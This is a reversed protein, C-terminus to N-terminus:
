RPHEKCLAAAALLGAVAAAIPQGTQSEYYTFGPSPNVEFCYWEGDPTRRLDIGAVPLGLRKALDFCRLTVEPPLEISTLVPDRHGLVRAYRYDDADSDVEVAFVEAGVVHVRVDTGPVRRQFQTPCAAVDAFREEPRVRRVRSRVGSASKVIVDGHERLFDAVRDPDNTVLTPPVAFGAGAIARLQFPKSANGAAAEPRNLVYAGTRDTWANLVQDVEAAHRWEVSGPPRTRLGPLQTSDHPRVYAAQVRDLDFARGAVTVVTRSTRGGDVQVTTELVQRQDLFRVPAGLRELQTRVAAMPQDRVLGWLLITM